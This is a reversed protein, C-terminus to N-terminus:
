IRDCEHVASRGSARRLRFLAHGELGEIKIPEAGAVRMIDLARCAHGCCSSYVAAAAIRKGQDGISDFGQSPLAIDSQGRLGYM